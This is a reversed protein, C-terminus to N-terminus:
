TLTAYFFHIIEEFYNWIEYVNIGAIGQHKIANIILFKALTM